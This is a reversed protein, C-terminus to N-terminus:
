EKGKLNVDQDVKEKSLVKTLIEFRADADPLKIHIKVPMRRMFAEDIDNPRNTAGMVLVPADTSSNLLGDWLQLLLGFIETHASTSSTQRDRKTLLADVEDIFIVTPALKRALSFIAEANKDSEGLWKEFINSVKIPMFTANCSKALAKAIM